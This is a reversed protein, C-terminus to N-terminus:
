RQPSGSTEPAPHEQPNGSAGQGDIREANMVTDHDFEANFHDVDPLHKLEYKKPEGPKKPRLVAKKDTKKAIIHAKRDQRTIATYNAISAERARVCAILEIADTFFQPYPIDAKLETLAAQMKIVIQKIADDFEARQSMNMASIAPYESTYVETFSLCCAFLWEVKPSRFYNQGTNSVLAARQDM